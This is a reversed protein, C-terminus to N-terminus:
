VRIGEENINILIPSARLPSNEIEDQTFVIPSIVILNELGVEWAIESILDKTKRDFSAIEIFVDLDSFEDDDGRAKSGYIKFDILEVAETLRRKLELAIKYDRPKITSMSSDNDQKTSGTLPLLIAQSGPFSLPCEIIGRYIQELKSLCRRLLLLPYECIPIKM